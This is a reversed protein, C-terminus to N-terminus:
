RTDGNDLTYKSRYLGQTEEIIDGAFKIEVRYIQGVILPEALQIILFNRLDDVHSREVSIERHIADSVQIRSHQITLNWAHLIIVDTRTICQVEIAVTGATTFADLRNTEFQNFPLFVQLHLNYHIPRIDGPLRYSDRSVVSGNTPAIPM